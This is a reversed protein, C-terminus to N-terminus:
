AAKPTWLGNKGRLLAVAFVILKRMIVTIVVKAHKGKATLRDYVRKFYPNFRGVVIVPMYLVYRLTARSGQIFGRGRWIGFQRTMSALAATQGEEMTAIEPM